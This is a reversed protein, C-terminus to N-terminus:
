SNSPLGWPSCDDTDGMVQCCNEKNYSNTDTPDCESSLEKTTIKSSDEVIVRIDAYPGHDRVTSKHEETCYATVDSLKIKIANFNDENSRWYDQNAVATKLAITDVKVTGDDETISSEIESPSDVSDGIFVIKCLQHVEHENTQKIYGNAFELTKEVADKDSQAQDKAAQVAADRDTQAQTQAAQVAAEKDSQAQTQAAQVAAELAIIKQDKDSTSKQIKVLKAKQEVNKYQRRAM